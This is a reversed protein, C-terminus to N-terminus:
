GKATLTISDLECADAFEVRNRGSHKARYMAEDAARVLGAADIDTEPPLVTVGISATLAVPATLTAIAARLREAHSVANIQNCGPLVVLFEEGGIRGVADYPRTSERLARAADCLAVDGAAHGYTDNIRKFHDLDVVVLGLSAGERRSRAIEATLLDLIAARNWLRTLSDHMAIDRLEERAAILQDQLCLIRKGARIRVKLEQIDFPKTIYDDAGATLGAIVDDQERKGTILLIYTYPEQAQGRIERCLEIGDLGPMLWDCIVLKPGDPQQAIKLAERGDKATLVEYGWRRLSSELLRLMVAEDDAVLVKM